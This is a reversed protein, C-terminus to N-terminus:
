ENPNGYESMGGLEGILKKNINMGGTMQALMRQRYKDRISRSLNSGKIGVTPNANNFRSIKEAVREMMDSDQNDFAMFYANLLAQRRQLIDQEATKMEINAKQKQALREPAFGIAQSAVEGIGLDDILVNGKITTAKGEGFTDSLRIGKFVNKAFAPSATEMARWLHGDNVQGWAQASNILLGMSPGMLNVIFAQVATVEDPSKRPDRFWLDNLGMRDALNVGLTQTVVGRSISDGAYGGFTEAAWNKFWNDFDFPEDEDGIVANVAEVIKGLAWWGPLGTTGAFLFTMGLTGMLRKKGEERLDTIYKDIQKQLADGSYEPENNIRQTANIEKGIDTRENADFKKYFGEYASRVLMYTMQQSFQKFQLVVKATASQFYRPKNLTSYDFMSRYTLEKAVEVAKDVLRDGKYGGNQPKAYYEMALDFSSMAVVERNFKEAGHFAGSLIKMIRQGRGTYLNSPAEAQGVLDHSLTIDILGDAVFREYAKKQVDTLLGDKNALSPFAMDGQKDRFGARSFKKTFEFVKKSANANGFRAGIVPIGVAPVGLMNVLASAPATMYWIFSANSLTAPVTGTDPPDMIFDLRKELENIYDRLIKKDKPEQGDMYGRAADILSYLKGSHKFRSHQYAMHFASSTFARLMDSNMGQIGQRNLFMKRVSRDPLTMLYLQELSEELNQQYKDKTTGETARIMKKLDKLFEFDQINSEVMKRVNNGMDMEKSGDLEKKRKAAFMNRDISSEFQYFEKDKGKGFQLWYKGFRRLPFYPKLVHQSFHDKIKMYEPHSPINADSVGELRLSEAKRQLIVDIYEKLRKEYFSKVENYIKQGEPGIENWADDIPKNGSKGNTLSPDVGDVTADIMLLNLKEALKPFNSQFKQWKTTIESTTNLIASRDELMTETQNIFGKFQPLKHGIMDQLQRLTFAGLFHQRTADKLSELWFPMSEKMFAWSPRDSFANTVMNALGAGSAGVRRSGTLSSLMSKSSSALAAANPTLAPPAQLILHTNALTHGLVNDFGVLKSILRIFKDWFSIAGDYKIQSLQEQFQRNAMAEAVFEDLNKIGYDYMSKLREKGEKTLKVEVREEKGDVIKTEYRVPTYTRAKEWLKNLEGVARQQAPTLKTFNNPNLAWSTAAHTVEHIFTYNSAGGLNTNLNIADLHPFYTGPTDLLYVGEEYAELLVDIQGSIPATDVGKFKGSKLMQLALYTDRIDKNKFATNYLEPYVAELLKNLQTRTEGFESNIYNSVLQEQGNFQVSTMLPLEALRAAARGLYNSKDGALAKLAGQIDNRDIFEQVAPHMPAFSISSPRTFQGMGPQITATKDFGEEKGSPARGISAVYTPSVEPKRKPKAERTKDAFREGRRTMRQFEKVTAMFRRYQQQPLNEEVWKQFLEANEKTEGKRIAGKFKDDIEVGLDYAASRMSMNYPDAGVVKRTFYIYAAKEEPTRQSTPTRELATLAQMIRPTMEQISKESFPVAGTEEGLAYQEYSTLVDDLQARFDKIGRVTNLKPFNVLQSLAMRQEEANMNPLKALVEPITDKKTEPTISAKNFFDDILASKLQLERPSLEASVDPVKSGPTRGQVMKAPQGFFERLDELMGKVEANYNTVQQPALTDPKLASLFNTVADLPRNTDAAFDLKAKPVNDAIMRQTSEDAEGFDFGGQSPAPLPKTDPLTIAGQEVLAEFTTFFEKRLSDRIDSPLGRDLYRQIADVDKNDIAQKVLSEMRTIPRREMYASQELYEAKEIDKLVGTNYAENRKTRVLNELADPRDKFLDYLKRPMFEVSQLVNGNEDVLQVVNEKEILGPRREQPFRPAALPKAVVPKGELQRLEANLREIYEIAGPIRDDDPNIQSEQIVFAQAKKIEDILEQRTAVQEETLKPPAPPPPPPTEESITPPVNGQQDFDLALQQSTEGAGVSSPPVQTGAVDGEVTATTGGVPGGPEDIGPLSLQRAGPDLGIGADSEGAQQLATTGPAIAERAEPLEARYGGYTQLARSGGGLGGGVAAGGFLAEIYESKAEENDLALGAQWREAVQELFETPAEAIIGVTAGKLAGKGVEKAVTGAGVEGLARRKALEAAAQKGANKGVAGLGTAFRDAFYGIPATGAATMAAKALELEEPDKRNEAQRVLFNGFQQVGYTAIGAIAGGVPTIFPSAAAGVALPGAMQPASQLLQEGIYSPVKGAASLLGQEEYIRGIDAASLTKSGERGELRRQEQIGQMRARAADTDGTLTEKALGLGGVMEGFSEIGRKGAAKLREGAGLEEPKRTDVPPRGIDPYASLIKQKAASPDVDDPINEVLTGDPLRISYAM